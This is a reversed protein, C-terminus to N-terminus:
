NSDVKKEGRFINKGTTGFRCFVPFRKWYYLVPDFSNNNDPKRHRKLSCNILAMVIFASVVFFFFCSSKLIGKIMDGISPLLLM